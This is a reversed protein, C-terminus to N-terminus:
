PFGCRTQTSERTVSPASTATVLTSIAAARCRKGVRFQEGQEDAAALAPLGGDVDAAIQERAVAIEFCQQFAVRRREGGLWAQARGFRTAQVGREFEAPAVEGAIQM